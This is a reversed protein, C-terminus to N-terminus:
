QALAPYLRDGVGMTKVFGRGAAAAVGVLWWYVTSSFTVRLCSLVCGREGAIISLTAKVGLALALLKAEAM